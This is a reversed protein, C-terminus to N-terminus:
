AYPWPEEMDHDISPEGDEVLGSCVLLYVFFLLLFQVPECIGADVFEAM